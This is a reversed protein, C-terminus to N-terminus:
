MVEMRKRDYGAKIAVDNREKCYADIEAERKIRGAPTSGKSIVYGVLDM